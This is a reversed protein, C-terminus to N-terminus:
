LQIEVSHERGDSMVPILNSDLRQGDFFITAKGDSIRAFGENKTVTVDYYAKGTNLRYSLRTEDPRLIPDFRIGQRTYEIGYASMLTLILWTSTGSLMPGINEGTESNNYQ